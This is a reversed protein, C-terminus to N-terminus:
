VPPGAEQGRPKEGGFSFSWAPVRDSAAKANIKDLPRYRQGQPGVGWSLVAPTSKAEDGIDKETAGAMAQGCALVSPVWRTVVRKRLVNGRQNPKISDLVVAIAGRDKRPM